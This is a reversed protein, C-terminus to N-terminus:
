LGQSLEPALPNLQRARALAHKADAGREAAALDFWVLWNRPDKRAAIRLARRAAPVNGLALEGEGERFYAEASWPAWREAKRAERVEKTWDAAGAARVASSLPVNALLVYFSAAVTLAAATVAAVRLPTRLPYRNRRSRGGILVAAGCLVAALTVASLEWDWDAAAHVVYAAYAAAASAVLPHKRARVAAVLPTGLAVVLLALGFPGLEALTEMYLSHADRVQLRSHRHENWWSEYSSAGGGLWPHAQAEHWAGRWLAIRGNSSLSFLRKQLETGREVHVPPSTFSRWAKRAAAAPGGFHVAAVAIAAMVAAAWAVAYSAAVWRPLAAHATLYAFVLGFVASVVTAVAVEVAVRHGDHAAAALAAGQTTLAHSRSALWVVVAAPGALLLADLFLLKRPALLLAAVVGVALAIWPGRSFTFYLTTLLVPLSASGLVRALANGRAAFGLALLIGMVSFIGVGNWYGIPAALRYPSAPDYRGLRDPLLRTGLGYLDDVVIGALVGGLLLSVHRRRVVLLVAAVGAPYVLAREAEYVAGSASAAWVASLLYWATLAALAGAFVLERSGVSVRDRVFLAVAAAWAFALAAWGWSGPFYGGNSAGLAAVAVLPGLFSVTGGLRLRQLSLPEHRADRRALLETM